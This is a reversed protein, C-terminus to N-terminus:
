RHHKAPKNILSTRASSPIRQFVLLNKGIKIVLAIGGKVFYFERSYKFFLAPINLELFFFLCTAQVAFCTFHGLASLITLNQILLLTITIM